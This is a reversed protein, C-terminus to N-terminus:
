RWPDAETDKYNYHLCAQVPLTIIDGAVTLPVLLYLAPRQVTEKPMGDSTMTAKGHVGRTMCGSAALLSLSGFLLIFNKKM